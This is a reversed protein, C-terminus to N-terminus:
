TIQRHRTRTVAESKSKKPKPPKDGYDRLGFEYLDDSAPAYMVVLVTSAETGSKSFTSDPLAEFTGDALLLLDRFARAPANNNFMVGAGMIAVLHGNTKLFRLAHTVHAIDRGEAFPPNMIVRDYDCSPELTLFDEANRVCFEIALQARLVPDSEIVDVSAGRRQAVRAIAGEGASPELVRLM